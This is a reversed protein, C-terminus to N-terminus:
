WETKFPKKGASGDGGMIVVQEGNGTYVDKLGASSPVWGSESESLEATIEFVKGTRDCFTLMKGNFV